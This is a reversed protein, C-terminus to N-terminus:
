RQSVVRRITLQKRLPYQRTTFHTEHKLVTRAAPLTTSAYEKTGNPVHPMQSAYEDSETAQWGRLRVGHKAVNEQKRLFPGQELNTRDDEGGPKRRIGIWQKNKLLNM